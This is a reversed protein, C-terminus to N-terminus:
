ADGGMTLEHTSYNGPFWDTDIAGVRRLRSLSKSASGECRRIDDGVSSVAVINVGLQPIIGVLLWYYTIIDIPKLKGEQVLRFLSRPIHAFGEELM